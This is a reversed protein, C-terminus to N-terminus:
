VVLCCVFYLYCKKLCQVALLVSSHGRACSFWFFIIKEITGFLVPPNATVPDLCRALTCLHLDFKTSTPSVLNPLDSYFLPNPLQPSLCSHLIGPFGGTRDSFINWSLFGDSAMSLTMFLVLFTGAVRVPIFIIWTEVQWCPFVLHYM